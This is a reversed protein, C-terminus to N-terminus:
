VVQVPMRLVRFMRNVEAEIHSPHAGSPSEESRENDRVNQSMTVGLNEVGTQRAVDEIAFRARSHNQLRAPEDSM